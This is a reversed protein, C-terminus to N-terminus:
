IQQTLADGRDTESTTLSMAPATTLHEQIHSQATITSMNTVTVQGDTIHISGSTGRM